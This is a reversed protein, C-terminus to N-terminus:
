GTACEAVRGVADGMAGGAAAVVGGRMLLSVAMGLLPATGLAVVPASAAGGGLLPVM